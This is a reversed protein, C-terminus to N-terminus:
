MTDGVFLRASPNVYLQDLVAFTTQPHPKKFAGPVYGQIADFQIDGFLAEIIEVAQHYYKNTVVALKIGDQQLQRLTAAVDPYACTRDTMHYEYQALFHDYVPSAIDAPVLTDVMNRSGGGILQSYSDQSKTEFGFYALTKNMADSIDGLTDVLTGDLDFIICDLM